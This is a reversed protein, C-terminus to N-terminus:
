AANLALARAPSVRGRHGRHACVVLVTDRGGIQYRERVANSWDDSTQRSNAPERTCVWSAAKQPQSRGSGQSAPTHELELGTPTEVPRQPTRPM